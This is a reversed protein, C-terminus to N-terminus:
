KEKSKKTPKLPNIKVSEIIFEPPTEIERDTIRTLTAVVAQRPPPLPKGHRDVTPKVPRSM